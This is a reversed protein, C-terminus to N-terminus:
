KRTFYVSQTAVAVNNSDKVNINRVVDGVVSAMPVKVTEYFDGGSYIVNNNDDVKVINKYTGASNRSGLTKDGTTINNSIFIEGKSTNAGVSADSKNGTDVWIRGDIQGGTKPLAGIEAPTHTHNSNSKNGINDTVEKLKGDIIDWNGNTATIDAADTLAPKILKYNSTTTSM